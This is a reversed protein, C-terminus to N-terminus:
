FSSKKNYIFISSILYIFLFVFFFITSLLLSTANIRAVDYKKRGNM